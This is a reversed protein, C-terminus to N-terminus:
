ELKYIVTDAKETNRTIKIFGINVSDLRVMKFAYDNFNFQFIKKYNGDRYDIYVEGYEPAFVGSKDIYFSIDYKKDSLKIKKILEDKDPSNSCGLYILCMIILLAIKKIEIM